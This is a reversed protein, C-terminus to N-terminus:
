LKSGEVRIMVTKDTVMDLGDIISIAKKADRELAKHTLMVIPVFGKTVRGKQIVSYISINFDALIGSIKSLVGQPIWPQFGSIVPPKYKM